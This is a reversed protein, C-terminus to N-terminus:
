AVLALKPAPRHSFVLEELAESYKRLHEVLHSAHTYGGSAGPLTQGLLLASEAYPAGAQIFLTRAVHRLEHPSPLGDERPEQVHGSKSNPSPFLWESNLPEDAKMRAELIGALKPGMPFLHPEEKTKMHRFTLVRKELDVDERRVNLISSRRAGTLLMTLHVDRRVPTLEQVKEWWDALDLPPVKRKKSGPIRVADVPNSPITEDDLM